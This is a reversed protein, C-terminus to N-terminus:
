ARADGTGLREERWNRVCVKLYRMDATMDRSIAYDMFHRIQERPCSKLSNLLWSFDNRAATLNNRDAKMGQESQWHFVLDWADQERRERDRALVANYEEVQRERELIEVAKDHPDEGTMTQALPVDSKGRNCEWCSTVLNIADDTGGRSVPTIHDVELVVEPSQRGCYRCTFQDRKFVEFRTRVSLAV